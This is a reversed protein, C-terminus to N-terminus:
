GIRDHPRPPATRPAARVPSAGRPALEGDVMIAPRHQFKDSSLSGGAARQVAVGPHQDEGRDLRDRGDADMHQPLAPQQIVVIHDRAVPRFECLPALLLGRDAVQQRVLAAEGLNGVVEVPLPKTVPLVDGGTDRSDHSIPRGPRRGAVVRRGVAPRQPLQDEAQVTAHRAVEHALRDELREGDTAFEREAQLPVFDIAAHPYM